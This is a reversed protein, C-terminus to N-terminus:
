LEAINKILYANVLSIIGFSINLLLVWWKLKPKKSAVPVIFAAGFWGASLNVFLDSVITLFLPDLRLM